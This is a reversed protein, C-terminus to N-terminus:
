IAFSEAEVFVAQRWELFQGLLVRPNVKRFHEKALCIARQKAEIRNLGSLDVYLPEPGVVRLKWHFCRDTELVLWREPDIKVSFM